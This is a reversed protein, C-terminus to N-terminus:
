GGMSAARRSVVVEDQLSIKGEEVADYICNLTMIKTMSAIPRKEDANREFLVRGEASTLIASKATVEVASACAFSASAVVCLLAGCLFLTIMKKM